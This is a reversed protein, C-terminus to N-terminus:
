PGQRWQHRGSSAQPQTNTTRQPPLHIYGQAQTWLSVLDGAVFRKLRESLGLLLTEAGRKGKTPTARLVLKPFGLVAFLHEDTPSVCYRAIAAGLASSVDGQLVAPLHRVTRVQLQLLDMLPVPHPCLIAGLSPGTSIRVGNGVLDVPTVEEGVDGGHALDPTADLSVRLDTGPPPPVFPLDTLMATPHVPAGPLDAQAPAQARRTPGVGARSFPTRVGVQPAPEGLIHQWGINTTSLSGPDNGSQLAHHLGDQLLALLIEEDVPMPNPSEALPHDEGTPPGPNSEIDGCTM